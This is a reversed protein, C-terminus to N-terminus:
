ANSLFDIQKDVVANYGVDTVHGKDEMFYQTYNIENFGCFSFQDLCPIGWRAAVEKQANVYDNLTKTGSISEKIWGNRSQFIPLSTLIVITALPNKEYIKKICYNMGGCQTARKSEDYNDDSTYDKSTGIEYQGYYDNGSCWLIWVDSASNANTVQNQINNSQANSFGAGGVGYFKFDHIGLSSLWKESIGYTHVFNYTLSGGFLSFRKGFNKCVKYKNVNALQDFLGEKSQLAFVANSTNKSITFRIYKAKSQLKIETVVNEIASAWKLASIFNKNEDYLCAYTFQSSYISAVGYIIKLKEVGDISIYDTVGRSASTEITGDANLFGNEVSAAKKEAGYVVFLNELSTLETSVKKGNNKGVIKLVAKSSANVITFRVFKVSSSIKIETLVNEAASTWKLASIFNKNEDYLCAFTNQASNIAAVGGLISIKEVGDVSIFDTIARGTSSAITGNSNLFGFEFPSEECVIACWEKIAENKENVVRLNKGGIFNVKANTSKVGLTFRIYKVNIPIIIMGQVNEIASTWKLASVFEKNEDYLCAFTFQSLYISAVGSLVDLKTYGEVDIYDTVGRTTSTAITGDANLFGNEKSEIENLLFFGDVASGKAVNEGGMKKVESASVIPMNNGSSLDSETAAPLGRIYDSFKVDQETPM